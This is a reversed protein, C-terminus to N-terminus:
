RVTRAPRPKIPVKANLERSWDLVLELRTQGAGSAAERTRVLIRGDPTVGLVGAPDVDSALLRPEGAGRGGEAGAPAQWLQGDRTFLLSRGDPSWALRSGDTNAIRIPEPRADGGASTAGTAADLRQRAAIMATWAGSANSQYALWRGDPSIVGSTEDAPTRVLAQPAGGSWPLFWLDLGTRSEVGETYTAVFVLGEAAASAPFTQLGALVASGAPAFFAPGSAAQSSKAAAAASAPTVPVARITVAAASADGVTKALLGFPGDQRSSYVVRRSDATWVPTINQGDSTLRQLAGGGGNADSVWIESRHGDGRAIALRAGDPSLALWRIERARFPVAAASATAAGAGEAGRAAAGGSAASEPVGSTSASRAVGTASSTGAPAGALGVWRYTAASEPHALRIAAAHGGPAVAFQSVANTDAADATAVDDLVPVAQGLIELTEPDFPAAFVTRDRAFLLHGTSAVHPSTAAEVLTQVRGTEFPLVAVRAAEPGGNLPLGAFVVGADDPLLDPWAHRVEGAAADPSTLMAPTGGDEHIRWLGGTLSPAYVIFRRTSWVAGLPARADGLTVVPGGAAPVKKLAGGAFFGIWRADPSFFPSSAGDTGELVIADLRDADRVYIRSAGPGGARAIFAVRRGDRSLALSVGDRTLEVGAPLEVGFRVVPRAYSSPQRIVAFIIASMVGAMAAVFMWPLWVPWAAEQPLSRADAAPAHSNAVEPLVPAASAPLSEDSPPPMTGNGALAASAAHAAAVFRYGRRPVTQIFTPRQPDDVLAQRLLSVAETLSTETVNADKWVEDLLVQKPVIQGPRDILCSLVGVARPPLSLEAGGRYLLRNLRDFEFDGFRVRDISLM